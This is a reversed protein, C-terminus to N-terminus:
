CPKDPVDKVIVPTKELYNILEDINGRRSDCIFVRGGHSDGMNKLPTLRVYGANRSAFYGTIYDPDDSICLEAIMGPGNAVKTALVLAERFHNKGSATSSEEADMYTVRIGRERDPEMRRDSAVDYLMAGRMVKVSRIQEIVGEAEQLTLGEGLLLERMIEFSGEITDAPRTSIPLAPLYRIEDLAIRELKINIFDPEGLSHHAARQALAAIVDGINETPAIREAGSIHRQGEAARMKISFLSM